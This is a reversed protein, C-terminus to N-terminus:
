GGRREIEGLPVAKAGACDAVFGNGRWFIRMIWTVLRGGLRSDPDPVSVKDEPAFPLTGPLPARTIAPGTM